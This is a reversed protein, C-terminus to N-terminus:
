NEYFCEQLEAQPYYWGREKFVSSISIVCVKVNIKQNYPLNDDTKFMFRMFDKAMIFETDEDLNINIINFFYGPKDETSLRKVSKM